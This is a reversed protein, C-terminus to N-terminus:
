QGPFCHHNIARILDFFHQRHVPYDEFNKTIMALTCEFVAGLIPPIKETM